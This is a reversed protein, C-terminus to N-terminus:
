PDPDPIHPPKQLERILDDRLRVILPDPLKPIMVWLMDVECIHVRAGCVPKDVVFGNIVVPKVVKGRVRCKCKLWWKWIENPIPLLEYAQKKPDVKLVPEYAHMQELDAPTPERKEGEPEFPPALLLRVGRGAAVAELIALDVQGEKVPASALLRGGREFAYAVVDVEAEPKKDFGVKFRLQKPVKIPRPTEPM